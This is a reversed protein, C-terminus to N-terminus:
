AGGNSKLEEYINHVFGPLREKLIRTLNEAGDLVLTRVKSSTSTKAQRPLVVVQGCFESLEGVQEDTYTGEVAILTDPHILKILYWKPHSAKKTVVADVYRLHTLMEMREVLPVVPRNEGKRERAKEDDDVGIILINGHRKAERIYRAHGIHILDFTGQTLVISKNSARVRELFPILEDEELVRNFTSVETDGNATLLISLIKADVSLLDQSTM